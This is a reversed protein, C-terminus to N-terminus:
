TGTQEQDIKVKMWSHLNTVIANLMKAIGADDTMKSRDAANPTDFPNGQGPGVGVFTYLASSHDGRGVLLGPFGNASNLLSPSVCYTSLVTHPQIPPFDSLGATQLVPDAHM